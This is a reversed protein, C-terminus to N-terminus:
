PKKETTALTLKVIHLRELFKKFCKEIFTLYVNRQFIGNLTVLERCFKTWDSRLTFCRYVLTSLMGFKHISALFGEFHTYVGSRTQLLCFNCRSDGQSFELDLFSMEGNTKKRLHFPCIRTVLILTTKRDTSKFLVFLIMLLSTSIRSPM